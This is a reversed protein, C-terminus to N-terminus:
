KLTGKPLTSSVSPKQVKIVVNHAIEVSVINDEIDVIKGMLGGMTIVEDGKALSALLQRQQKARKSQPRILLFYFIVFFVVLMIVTSWPSGQPHAATTTTAANTAPVVSDAYATPILFSLLSM